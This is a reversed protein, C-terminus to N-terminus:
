QATDLHLDDVSNERGFDKVDTEIEQLIVYGMAGIFICQSAQLDCM